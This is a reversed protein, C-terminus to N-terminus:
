ADLWDRGLATAASLHLQEISKGTGGEGSFLVCERRPVRNYVVWEQEPAPEFDWRSMDIFVFATGDAPIERCIDLLKTPDNSRKTGGELWDKVDWGHPPEGSQGLNKWLHLAPVVRFSAAGPSLKKRAAASFEKAKIVGKADPLDHDEHYILHRGA